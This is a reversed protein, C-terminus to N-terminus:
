CLIVQVARRILSARLIGDFKNRFTVTMFEGSRILLPKEITLNKGCNSQQNESWKRAITSCLSASASDHFISRYHRSSELWPVRISSLFKFYRGSNGNKEPRRNVLCNQV